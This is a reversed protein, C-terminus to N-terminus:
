AGCDDPYTWHVITWLVVHTHLMASAVYTIPKCRYAVVDSVVLFDVWGVAGHFVHCGEEGSGVGETQFDDEIKYYVM